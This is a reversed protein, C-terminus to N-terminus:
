AISWLLPDDLINGDVNFDLLVRKEIGNVFERKAQNNIDYIGFSIYSDRNTDSPRYIWGVVHDKKKEHMGLANKVEHLFIYGRSQLVNNAWAEIKRLRDLNYEADNMWGFCSEDYFECYDSKDFASTDDLIVEKKGTEKNTVVKCGYKLEIDADQGYREIVRERYEKFCTSLTSYASILAEHRKNLVNHGSLVLGLSSGILLASPAYLKVVKLGTDLTVKLREKREEEHLDEKIEDQSYHNFDDRIDEIQEKHDEIIGDLKRTAKCAEVTGVVTGVVGIGVMIEPAHRRINFSLRKISMKISNKM